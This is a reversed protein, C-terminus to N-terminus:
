KFFYHCFVERIQHLIFEYFNLLNQICNQYIWYRGM